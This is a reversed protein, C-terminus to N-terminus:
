QREPTLDLRAVLEDRLREAIVDGFFTLVLVVLAGIFLNPQLRDRLQQKSQLAHNQISRVADDAGRRYAAHDDGCSALFLLLPVTFILLRAARM